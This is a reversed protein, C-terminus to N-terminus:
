QGNQLFMSILDENRLISYLFMVFVESINVTNKLLKLIPNIVKIPKTNYALLFVLFKFIADEITCMQQKRRGNNTAPNGTSIGVASDFYKLSVMDSQSLITLFNYVITEDDLLEDLLYSISVSSSPQNVDVFPFMDKKNVSKTLMNNIVVTLLYLLSKMCCPITSSDSLDITFGNKNQDETMAGLSLCYVPNKLNMQSLMLQSSNRIIDFVLQKNAVNTCDDITLDFNLAMFRLFEIQLNLPGLHRAFPGNDPEVLYNLLKLWNNQLFSRSFSKMKRSDCQDKISNLFLDFNERFPVSVIRKMNLDHKSLLKQLMQFFNPDEILCWHDSDNLNYFIMFAHNWTRIHIRSANDVFYKTIAQYSRNDLKNVQFNLCIITWIYILNDFYNLSKSVINEIIEDVTESVICFRSITSTETWIDQFRKPWNKLYSEKSVNSNNTSNRYVKNFSGILTGAKQTTIKRLFHETAIESGVGIRDDITSSINQTSYYSPNLLLPEVSPPPKSAKAPAGDTPVLIYLLFFCRLNSVRKLFCVGKLVNRPYFGILVGVWGLRAKVNCNNCKRGTKSFSVNGLRYYTM